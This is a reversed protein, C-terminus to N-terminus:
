HAGAGHRIGHWSPTCFSYTVAIPTPLCVQFRAQEPVNGAERAAVFDDYSARAERAYGLESSWARAWGNSVGGRGYGLWYQWGSSGSRPHLGANSGGCANDGTEILSRGYTTETVDQKVDRVTM